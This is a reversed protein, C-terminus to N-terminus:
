TDDPNDRLRASSGLGPISSVSSIVAFRTAAADCPSLWTLVPFVSNSSLQLIPM